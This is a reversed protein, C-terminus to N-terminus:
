PGFLYVPEDIGHAGIRKGSFVQRKGYRVLKQILRSGCPESDGIRSFFRNPHLGFVETFRGSCVLNELFMRSRWEAM